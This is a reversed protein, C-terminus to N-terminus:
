GGFVSARRIARQATDAFNVPEGGTLTAIDSTVEAFRQERVSEFM